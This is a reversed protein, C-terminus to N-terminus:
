LREGCEGARLARVSTVASVRARLAASPPQGLQVRPPVILDAEWRVFYYSANYGGSTGRPWPTPEAGPVFEVTWKLTGSCERFTNAEPGAVYVGEHLQGGQSTRHASVCGVGLFLFVARALSTRLTVRM